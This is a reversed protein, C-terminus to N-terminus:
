RRRARVTLWGGFIADVTHAALVVAGLLFPLFVIGVAATSSSNLTSPAFVFAALVVMVSLTGWSIARNWGPQARVLVAFPLALFASVVLLFVVGGVGDATGVFWPCLATAGGALWACITLNRGRPSPAM